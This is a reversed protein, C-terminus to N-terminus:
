MFVPNSLPFKSKDVLTLISSEPMCSLMQIKEVQFWVLYKLLHEFLLSCFYQLFTLRVYVVSFLCSLSFFHIFGWSCGPQDYCIKRLLSLCLFIIKYLSIKSTCYRLARMQTNGARARETYVFITLTISYM